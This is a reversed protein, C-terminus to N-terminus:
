DVEIITYAKVVLKEEQGETHEVYVNITMDGTGDVEFFFYDSASGQNGFDYTLSSYTTLPTVDFILSNSQFSTATRQLSFHIKASETPDLNYGSFYVLFRRNRQDSYKESKVFHRNLLYLYTNGTVEQSSNPLPGDSAFTIPASCTNYYTAVIQKYSQQIYDQTTNIDRLLSVTLPQEGEGRESSIYFSGSNVDTWHSSQLGIKRENKVLVSELLAVNTPTVPGFAKRVRISFLAILFDDQNNAGSVGNRWHQVWSHSIPGASLVPSIYTHIGGPGVSGFPGTVRIKCEVVVAINTNLFVDFQLPIRDSFNILPFAAAYAIQDVNWGTDPDITSPNPNGNPIIPDMNAWALSASQCGRIANHNYILNQVGRRGEPTTKLGEVIPATNNFSSMEPYRTSNSVVTAM